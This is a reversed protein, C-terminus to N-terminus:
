QLVSIDLQGMTNLVTLKAIAVDTIARDAAAQANILATEGSLVDILSRQGLTREKRALELFEGAINSQNTLFEANAQATQLNQWANRAQEEVRDRTDKLRSNAASHGSKAAKLTNAATWGMNFNYTVEVKLLTENKNGMTGGVDRKYKHEASGSVSPRYSSAFTRDIETTAIQTQLAATKVQPNDTLAATVIVEEGDPMLADASKPLEFDTVTPPVAGFVARYRNMAQHLAGQARVRAAQAGALQTKAQLVDTSFGSGRVVRANELETQRKINSESQTQFDLVRKASALNLQASLAELILGQYALDYAAQAQGIALDAGGITSKTAGFDWLTQTLSLDVERPAMSTTTPTAIPNQTWIKENGLNATLGVTPYYGGEAVNKNARAADIDSQAARMREHGALLESLSDALSAAYAPASLSAFFVGSVLAAKFNLQIGVHFGMLGIKKIKM